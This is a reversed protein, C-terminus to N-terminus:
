LITFIYNIVLKNIINFVIELHLYTQKNIYHNWLCKPNTFKENRSFIPPSHNLARIYFM